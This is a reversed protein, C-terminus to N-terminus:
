YKKRVKLIIKFILSLLRVPERNIETFFKNRFNTLKLLKGQYTRWGDDRCSIRKTSAELRDEQKCVVQNTYQVPSFLCHMMKPIPKYPPTPSM